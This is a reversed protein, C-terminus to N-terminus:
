ARRDSEPKSQRRYSDTWGKKVVYYLAWNDCQNVFRELKIKKALQFDQEQLKQHKGHILHVKLHKSCVAEM